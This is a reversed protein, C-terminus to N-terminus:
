CNESIEQRQSYRGNIDIIASYGPLVKGEIVYGYAALGRGTINFSTNIKFTVASKM